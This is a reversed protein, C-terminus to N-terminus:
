SRNLPCGDDACFACNQPHDKWDGCHAYMSPDDSENEDIETNDDEWYEEEDPTPIHYDTPFYFGDDYDPDEDNFSAPFGSAEYDSKKM